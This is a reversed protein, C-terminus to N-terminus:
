VAEQELADIRAPLEALTALARADIARIGAARAAAADQAPEDGVYVAAAAPLGLRALALRLLAPDPKVAGAEAPLVVAEFAGDLGHGRLLGHLRHDFNSAVALALGRRRLARLASRAGTVVRWAEPRAYHSWLAEFLAEPDDVRATGDAARLTGRVVARWWGRERERLAAGSAGPFAMPPMAALVRRFAAELRAAPVRAGRARAERAYTEGVPESPVLLTGAADFLM